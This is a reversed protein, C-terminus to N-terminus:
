LVIRLGTGGDAGKGKDKRTVRAGWEGIMFDGGRVARNLCWERVNGTM